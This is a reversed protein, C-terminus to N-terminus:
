AKKTNEQKNNQNNDAQKANNKAHVLKNGIMTAFPTVAVPALFRYVTGFVVLKKLVGMGRLRSELGKDQTTQAIYDLVSTAKFKADEALRGATKDANFKALKEKNHQALKEIFSSDGTQKQAYKATLREWKSDLMNDITYSGITSLAFTLGQNIALTRRRDEDLQKNKLTQTMYMGSIIISGMVQMHDVVSNLKDTKKALVQAIKSTYLKSTYNDSLWTTFKDMGKHFPALLKSKKPIPIEGTFAPKNYSIGSKLRNNKNSYQNAYQSSFNNTQFTVNM